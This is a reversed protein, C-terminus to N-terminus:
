GIDKVEGTLFNKAVVRDNIWVAIEELCHQIGEVTDMIAASNEYQVEAIRREDDLTDIFDQAVDPLFTFRVVIM